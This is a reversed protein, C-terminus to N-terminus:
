QQARDETLHEESEIDNERGGTRPGHNRKGNMLLAIMCAGLAFALGFMAIDKWQPSDNGESTQGGGPVVGPRGSDEELGNSDDDQGYVTIFVEASCPGLLCFVNRGQSGEIFAKARFRGGSLVVGSVTVSYRYYPEPFSYTWTARLEFRYGLEDLIEEEIIINLKEDGEQINAESVLDFPNGAYVWYDGMTNMLPLSPQITVEPEWSLSLTVTGYLHAFGFDATLGIGDTGLVFGVSGHVSTVALPVAGGVGIMLGQDAGDDTAYYGLRLFEGGQVHVTAVGRNDVEVCQVVVGLNIPCTGVGFTIPNRGEELRAVVKTSQPEVFVTKIEGEAEFGVSVSEDGDNELRIDDFSYFEVDSTVVILDQRAAGSEVRYFFAGSETLTKTYDFVGNGDSSTSFKGGTPDLVSVDHYPVPNDNEDLLKGSITVTDGPQPKEKDIWVEIHDPDENGGGNDEVIISAITVKSAAPYNAKADACSLQYDNTYRLSYAGTGTPASTTHVDSGTQGPYVGPVSDYACYLSDDGIGIVIQQRCGPCTDPNWIQYDLSVTISEGPSVTTSTGDGNLDVNYVNIGGENGGGSDEVIISAITTKSALPYNALADNCNYQYDNTYKLSYTGISTPAAITHVDSGTHGPYVGPVSDYVCYLPDNGIGIVIQQRCGPCADPNWIQFELGVTVSDGSGVTTSTGDGNLDVNFVNVGGENGEGGEDVVISAITVKSAAPYNAKADACSLQYDHSNRLAYAGSSAPAVITHVDSGTHGPYVGPVSDYVCYLPDNGIGIVIQQRCGPCTDPNWIQYDLSVTISEGPGIWVINGEGNMDVNYVTAGGNDAMASNLLYPGVLLTAVIIALIHCSYKGQEQNMLSNPLHFRM